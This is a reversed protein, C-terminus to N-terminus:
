LTIGWLSNDRELKDFLDVIRMKIDNIQSIVCSRYNMSVIKNKIKFIQDLEQDDCYGTFIGKKIKLDCLFVLNSFLENYINSQIIYDNKLDLIKTKYRNKYSIKIGQIKALKITKKYLEMLRDLDITYIRKEDIFITSDSTIKIMSNTVYADILEIKTKM